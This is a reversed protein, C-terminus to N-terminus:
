LEEVPPIDLPRLVGGMPERESPFRSWGTAWSELLRGVQLCTGEGYAPALVQVAVPLGDSTGVPVVLAPTGTVNAILFNRAIRELWVEDGGRFLPDADPALRPATTPTAPTVIADVRAFADDLDRTITSRDEMARIYDVATIRLGADIRARSGATLDDRKGVGYLAAFEAVTITWAVRGARPASGLEVEQLEAGTHALASAARRAADLVEPTGWEFFWRTPVGIRLRRRSCAHAPPRLVSMMLAVDDVTRAMPGPQDLTTSVPVVGDRPVAGLTPKLGVVGCYSAPVRISGGTDTGIALPVEGSALAVASGSSSGGTWRGADWPNLPRHGEIADGFALEPTATKGILIAGADVLLQVVTANGEPIRSALRRAGATTLVGRTDVNDKVAFPVGELPRADDHKWRRDAAVAAARAADAVVTRFAHYRSEGPALDALVEEVVESPTTERARLRELLVTASTTTGNM